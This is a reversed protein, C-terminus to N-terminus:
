QLARYENSAYAASHAEGLWAMHERLHTRTVQEWGTVAPLRSALLAAADTYTRITKPKKGDARLTLRFDEIAPLLHPGAQDMIAM